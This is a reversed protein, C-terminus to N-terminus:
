EFEYDYVEILGNDYDILFFKDKLVISRTVKKEDSRELIFKAILRDNDFIDYVMDGYAYGDTLTWLYGYKDCMMEYIAIKYEYINKYNEPRNDKGFIKDLEDETFRKKFYNKRINGVLKGQHSYIGVKYESKNRTTLFISSDNFAFIPETFFLKDSENLYDIFSEYIRNIKVFSKNYIDLSQGVMRVDDITKGFIVRVVLTSDNLEQIDIPSSIEDYEIVKYSLYQGNKLFKKLKIRNDIICVTDKDLYYGSMIEVEEPGMGEATINNKFRGKNDFVRISGSKKDRIFVNGEDDVKVGKWWLSFTRTSDAGEPYGEITHLKTLKVTKLEQKGNKETSCSILLTLISLLIIIRKM